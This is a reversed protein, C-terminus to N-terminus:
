DLIFSIFANALYAGLCFGALGFVMMASVMVLDFFENKQM